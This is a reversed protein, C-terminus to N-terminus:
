QLKGMICQFLLNMNNKTTYILYFILHLFSLVIQISSYKTNNIFHQKVFVKQVKQIM